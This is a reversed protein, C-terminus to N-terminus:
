VLSVGDGAEGHPTPQLHWALNELDFIILRPASIITDLTNKFSLRLM